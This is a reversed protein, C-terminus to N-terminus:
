IALRARLREGGTRLYEGVLGIPGPKAMRIEHALEPWFDPFLTAGHAWTSPAVTVGLGRLDVIMKAIQKINKDDYQKSWSAGYEPTVMVSTPKFREVLGVFGDVDADSLNINAAAIYKLQLRGAERYRGINEVVRGFVDAGKYSAYTERTGADVSIELMGRRKAITEAVGPLFKYGSTKFFQRAGYALFMRSLENFEVLASIDGGGWTVVGNPDLHEGALMDAMVEVMPYAVKSYKFGPATTFCYRCKLNCHTWVNMTLASALYKRHSWRKAKLCPCSSCDDHHGTAITAHLAERAARIEDAPFTSGTIRALKVGGRAQGAGDIYHYTCASVDGAPGLELADQLYTCSRYPSM